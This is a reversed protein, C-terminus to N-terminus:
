IQGRCNPCNLRGNYFWRDVCRTHFTHSCPLRRIGHGREFEVLCVSCMDHNEQEGDSPPVYPFTSTNKAIPGGKAIRIEDPPLLAVEPPTEGRLLHYLKGYPLDDSQWDEDVDTIYVYEFAGRIVIQQRVFTEFDRLLYMRDWHVDDIDGWTNIYAADVENINFRDGLDEYFNDLAGENFFDRDQLFLPSFIQVNRVANPGFAHAECIFLILIVDM